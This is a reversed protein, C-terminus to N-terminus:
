HEGRPLPNTADRFIWFKQAVFLFLAILLILFGMVWQHPLGMRDVLLVLALFQLGYGVVYALFYRVLAPTTPGDFQFSWQRNFVFTQLVGVFYLLSMALKPGMGLNTLVVYLAYIAANSVLGVFAYRFFQKSATM